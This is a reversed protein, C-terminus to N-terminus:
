TAQPVTGRTWHLGGDNTLGLGYAGAAAVEAWAHKSDLVHPSIHWDPLRDTVKAWTKGADSSKSLVRGDIEWWHVADQYSVYGVQFPVYKWTFGGDFSTLEYRRIQECMCTASVVVGKVPLLEGAAQYTGATADWSEGSPPPLDHRQWSQGADVSEYIHPLGPGLSGLWAETPGRFSLTNADSPPDPLRQWTNGGDSTAYVNLVSSVTSTSAALLWGRSPDSFAVSEIRPTAPLRLLDWHFGADTTRYVQEVPSGITMFGRTKDFLRVSLPVFISFTTESQFQPQWHKAGDDTRFVEFRGGTSSPATLSMAAWGLLPTAFAYSILYSTVLQPNNAPESTPVRLRPTTSHLYAASASVILLGALAIM